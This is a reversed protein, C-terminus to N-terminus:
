GSDAFSHPRAAARPAALLVHHSPVSRWDAQRLDQCVHRTDPHNRQHYQVALPWHNGAWLVRAGAMQAGTSFGGFGAFLDVCDLDSATATGTNFNQM